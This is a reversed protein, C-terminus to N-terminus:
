MAACTMAPTTAATGSVIVGFSTGAGPALTGNYAANTV